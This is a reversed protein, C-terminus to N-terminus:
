WPAVSMIIYKIHFSDLCCLNILVVVIKIYVSISSDCSRICLAESFCLEYILKTRVYFRWVYIEVM